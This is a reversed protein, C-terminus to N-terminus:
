SKNYIRYLLVLAVLNIITICALFINTLGISQAAM